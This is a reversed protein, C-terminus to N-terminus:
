SALRSTSFAWSRMCRSTTLVSAQDAAPVRRSPVIFSPAPRRRKWPSREPGAPGTLGGNHQGKDKAAFTGVATGDVTADNGAVGTRM